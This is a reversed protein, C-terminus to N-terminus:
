REQMGESPPTCGSLGTTVMSLVSFEFTLHFQLYAGVLGGVDRLLLAVRVAPRVVDAESGAEVAPSISGAAAAAAVVKASGLFNKFRDFNLDAINDSVSMLKKLDAKKKGRMVQRTAPAAGGIFFVSSLPVFMCVCVCAPLMTNFM